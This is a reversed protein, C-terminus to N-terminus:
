LNLNHYLRTRLYIDQFLRYFRNLLYSYHLISFM